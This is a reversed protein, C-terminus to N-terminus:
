RTDGAHERAILTLARDRPTPTGCAQAVQRAIRDILEVGAEITDQDLRAGPKLSAAFTEAERRLPGNTEPASAGADAVVCAALRGRVYDLDSSLRRRREAGGIRAALPDDDLVREVVERTTSEGNKGAPLRRFYSRAMEYRGLAFACDGAGAVAVADDPALRLAHQFHELAHPYDGAQRFLEAVETHAAPQDPLDASLALLESAARGSERRTLLFRVLEIRVARRAAASEVPWPAYLANHYYRVADAAEQRQAALRALALNVEADEPTSERLTLLVNRAAEDDHNRTLARSLALLYRQETRNRVAARRLDDIAEDIQGAALAQQGRQYWEAADRLNMERNNTAVARTLFFGAVAAGILGVLQVLERHVFAARERDDRVTDGQYNV